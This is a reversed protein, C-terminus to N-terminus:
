PKFLSAEMGSNVSYEEIVTEGVKHGGAYNSIKFPFPMGDIIRFDSFEASLEAISDAMKFYGAAKVIYFSGPDIHIKLPPGESDTLELVKVRKGSVLESGTSRIEYAGTMLGYPLDLRKYQFVMALYRRGDVEPLPGKDSGRWGRSGNLVRIESLSSYLTEVRLKRGRKFYRIYTGKGGRMLANIKGKVYVSKIREITEKGGYAKIIESVLAKVGPARTAEDSAFATAPSILTLSLILACSIFFIRLIM